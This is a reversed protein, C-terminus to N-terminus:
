EYKVNISLTHDTAHISVEKPEELDDECSVMKKYLAEVQATGIYFGDTHRGPIGVLLPQHDPKLPNVRFEEVPLGTLLMCDHDIVFDGRYGYPMYRDIQYSYGDSAVKYTFKLTGTGTAKDFFAQVFDNIVNEETACVDFAFDAVQMMRKKM